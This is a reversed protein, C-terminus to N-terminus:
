IFFVEIYENNNYWNQYIKLETYIYTYMYIINISNRDRNVHYEIKLFWLRKELFFISQM